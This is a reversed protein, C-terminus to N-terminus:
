SNHELKSHKKYDHGMQYKGMIRTFAWPFSFYLCIYVDISKHDLEKAVYPVELFSSGNLIGSSFLILGHIM